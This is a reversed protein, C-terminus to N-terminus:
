GKCQLRYSCMWIGMIKVPSAFSTADYLDNSIYVVFPGKKGLTVYTVNVKFIGPVITM